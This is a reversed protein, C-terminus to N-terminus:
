RVSQLARRLKNIEATSRLLYIYNDVYLTLLKRSSTASTTYLLVVDESEFLKTSEATKNSRIKTMRSRCDKLAQELEEKKEWDVKAESTESVDTSDQPRGLCRFVLYSKGDANLKYLELDSNWVKEKSEENSTIGTLTHVTWTRLVYKTPLKIKVAQATLATLSLIAIAIALQQRM